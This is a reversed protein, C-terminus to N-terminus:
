ILIVVDEDDLFPLLKSLRYTCVNVDIVENLKSHYKYYKDKDSFRYLNYNYEVVTIYEDTSGSYEYTVVSQVVTAKEMHTNEQEYMRLKAIAIGILISIFIVIIIIKTAIKM